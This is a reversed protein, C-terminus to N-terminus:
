DAAAQMRLEACHRVLASSPLTRRGIIGAAFAAPLRAAASLGGSYHLWNRSVGLPSRLRLACRARLRLACRARPCDRGDPQRMPLLAQASQECWHLRDVKLVRSQGLARRVSRRGGAVFGVDDRARDTAAQIVLQTRGCVVLLLSACGM